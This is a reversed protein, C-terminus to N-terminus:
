IWKKHRFVLLMFISLLIMFLLVIPYGYHSKLEPMYDFNMGYVGVIFTLPIFITGIISLVKMVENMKNSVNSLYLEMMGSMVDRFTEETDIIQIIHEYVDRLYFRSNKSLLDIDEFRDLKSLIERLPWIAKRLFLIERKLSYINQLLNSNTDYLLREDLVEIKESIMELLAFYNDVIIDILAYALFDSGYKRLLSNNKKLRDRVIDFVDGEIGEQISIVYNKGFLISVQESDISDKEKNFSLMKVILFIYDNFFEVKPRKETNLIDELILNHHGFYDGIDKIIDVNIGDINIWFFDKEEKFIDIDSLKNLEKYEYSEQNYKTLEIKIKKDNQKGIHVLTGPALGVKDYKNRIIKSKSM